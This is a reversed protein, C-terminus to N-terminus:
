VEPLDEEIIDFLHEKEEGTLNLTKELEKGRDILKRSRRIRRKGQKAINYKLEQVIEVMLDNNSLYMGTLWNYLQYQNIGDHRLRIRMDAFKKEPM